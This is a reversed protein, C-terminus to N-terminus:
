LRGEEDSYWRCSALAERLARRAKSLQSRSTGPSCNRIRAIEDHPFGGLDHLVLIARYGDPLSAIARKLVVQRYGVAEGRASPEPWMGGSQAMEKVGQDRSRSRRLHMLCANVAIGFLWTSFKADGRFTTLKRHLTLFVEQTIDEAASSDNTMRLAVNYIRGAYRHYIREFAKDDGRKALEIWSQEQSVTTSRARGQVSDRVLETNM